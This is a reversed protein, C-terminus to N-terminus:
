ENACSAIAKAAAQTGALEVRMNKKGHTSSYIQIRLLNSALVKDFDSGEIIIFDIKDEMDTSIRMQEAPKSDFKLKIGTEYLKAEVFLADDSLQYTYGSGYLGVCSVQDDFPDVRRVVKWNGFRGIEKADAFDNAVASHSIGLALAILLVFM